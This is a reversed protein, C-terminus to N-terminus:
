YFFFLYLRYSSWIQCFPKWFINMLIIEFQVCYPMLKAVCSFINKEWGSWGNQCLRTVGNFLSPLSIITIVTIYFEYLKKNSYKIYIYIDYAYIYIYIILVSYAMNGFAHSGSLNSNCLERFSLKVFIWPRREFKRSQFDKRSDFEESIKARHSVFM